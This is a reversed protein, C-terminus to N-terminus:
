HCDQINIEIWAGSRPAVEFGYIAKGSAYIEIWAGSRPAVINTYEVTKFFDYKLGRGRAPLSM